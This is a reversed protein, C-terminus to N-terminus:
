VANTGNRWESRFSFPRHRGVGRGALILGGNKRLAFSEPIEKDPCAHPPGAAGADRKRGVGHAIFQVFERHNDGAVSVREQGLQV